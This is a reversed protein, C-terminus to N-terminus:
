ILSLSNEECRVAQGEREQESFIILSLPFKNYQHHGTNDVICHHHISHRTLPQTDCVDKSISVIVGVARM